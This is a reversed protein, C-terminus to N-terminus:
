VVASQIATNSRKMFETPYGTTIDYRELKGFLPATSPGENVLYVITPHHGQLLPPMIANRATGTPPCSSRATKVVVPTAVVIGTQNTGANTSAQLGCSALFFITWCGLLLRLLSRSDNAYRYEELQSLYGGSIAREVSDVPSLVFYMRCINRVRRVSDIAATTTWSVQFYM